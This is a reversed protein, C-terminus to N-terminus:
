TDRLTILWNVIVIISESLEINNINDISQGETLGLGEHTVFYHINICVPCQHDIM